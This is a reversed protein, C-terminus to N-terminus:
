PAETQIEVIGCLRNESELNHGLGRKARIWMSSAESRTEVRQTPVADVRAWARRMDERYTSM